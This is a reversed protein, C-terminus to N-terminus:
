RDFDEPREERRVVEGEIVNDDVTPGHWQAERLAKRVERSKWWLYAGGILAGVLLGAFLFLSVAIAGVFLAIGALVALARALFGQMGHGIRRGQFGIRAHEEDLRM